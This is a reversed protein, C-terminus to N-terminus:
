LLGLRVANHFTEGELEIQVQGDKAFTGDYIEFSSQKDEIITWVTLRFGPRVPSGFLKMLKPGSKAVTPQGSAWSTTQLTITKIVSKSRLSWIRIKNDDHLAFV